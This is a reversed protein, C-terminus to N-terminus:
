KPSPSPNDQGTTLRMLELYLIHSLDSQQHNLREVLVVRRSVPPDGFPFSRVDAGKLHGAPIVGAGLGAQVMSLMAESSDLEMAETVVLGAARITADILKGLGSIRNFRLFPLETLAADWSEVTSDPPALVFLDDTLIPMTDLEPEPILPETVIAADLERRRVQQILQGSQREELRIQLGPYRKRLNALAQPVLDSSIGNICGLALRGAIEDPAKAADVLTDFGRLVDRAQEAVFVGHANLRPPRTTRDFLAVQLDDELLRMQQSVAAPTLFLHEAAVAFSRHDAITVLTRFQQINM